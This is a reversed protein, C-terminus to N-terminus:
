TSRTMMQIRNSAPSRETPLNSVHRQEQSKKHQTQYHHIMQATIMTPPHSADELHSYARTSFHHREAATFLDCNLLSIETSINDLASDINRILFQQYKETYAIVQLYRELFQSLHSFNLFEFEGLEADMFRYLVLGETGQIKFFMVMHPLPSNEMWDRVQFEVSVASVPADRFLKLAHNSITSASLTSQTPHSVQTKRGAERLVYYQMFQYLFVHRPSFSQGYYLAQLTLTQHTRPQAPRTPRQNRLQLAREISFGICCQAFIYLATNNAAHYIHVFAGNFETALKQVHDILSIRSMFCEKFSVFHDQYRKILHNAMKNDDGTFTKLTSSLLATLDSLSPTTNHGPSRTRLYANEATELIDKSLSYFLAECVSQAIKHSCAMIEEALMGEPTSRGRFRLIRIQLTGLLDWLIRYENKESPITEGRCLKYILTYIVYLEYISQFIDQNQMPTDCETTFRAMHEVIAKHESLSLLPDAQVAPDPQRNSPNLHPNGVINEPTYATKYNRVLNNIEQLLDFFQM